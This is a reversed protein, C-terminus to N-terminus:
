RERGASSGHVRDLEVVHWGSLAVLHVKLEHKLLTQATYLAVKVGRGGGFSLGINPVVIFARQM